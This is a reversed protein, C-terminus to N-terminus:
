NNLPLPINVQIDSHNEQLLHLGELINGAFLLKGGPIGLRLETGPMSQSGPLIFPTDTANMPIIFVSLVEKDVIHPLVIGAPLIFKGADSIGWNQCPREQSFKNWGMYSKKSFENSLGHRFLFILPDENNKGWLHRHARTAFVMAKRKWAKPDTVRPKKRPDTM